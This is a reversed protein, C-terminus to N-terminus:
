TFVLVDFLSTINASQFFQDPADPNFTTGISRFWEPGVLWLTVDFPSQKRLDIYFNKNRSQQMVEEYSGLRPTPTAMPAVAPAPMGSTAPARANFSGAGFAFGIPLYNTPLSASLLLGMSLTDRTQMRSVRADHAWVLLKSQVGDRQVLWV